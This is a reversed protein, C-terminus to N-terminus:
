IAADMQTEAGELRSWPDVIWRQPQSHAPAARTSPANDVGQAVEELTGHGIPFCHAILTRRGVGVGGRDGGGGVSLQFRAQVVSLFLCVVVFVFVCNWHVSRAVIRARVDPQASTSAGVTRREM